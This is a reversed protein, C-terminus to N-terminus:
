KAEETLEPTTVHEWLGTTYNCVYEPQVNYIWVCYKLGQGQDEISEAEMLVGKATVDVNEFIPTVRYRVHNGTEEIYNVTQLEYDLMSGNCGTVDANLARSGTILNEVVNTQNGALCFAILHCRNVNVDTQKAEWWGSPHISSINGREETALTEPGIVANAEGRREYIDLDSFKVYTDTSALDYETIFFPENGNLIYAVNQGDYEPVTIGNVTTVTNSYDQSTVPTTNNADNNDKLGLNEFVKIAEQVYSDVDNNGTSIVTGTFLAVAAILAVTIYKLFKKKM